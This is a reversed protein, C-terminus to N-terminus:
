VAGAMVQKILKKGQGGTLVDQTWIALVDKPGLGPPQQDRNVVWVNVPTPDPKNQNAINTPAQSMRRNGMANMTSLTDAGILDVASQRMIFEGPAALIPVSDRTRIPGYGAAARRPVLGGGWFPTGGGADVPFDAADTSATSGSGGGFMWGAATVVGKMAMGFLAASAQNMAIQAMADLVNRALDRFAEGVSKTRTLVDSTFTAFGNKASTFAQPLNDRFMTLMPKGLGEAKAWNNWGQNLAEDMSAPDREAKLKALNSQVELQRKMTEDISIEVQLQQQRADALEKQVKLHDPGGEGKTGKFSTEYASLSTIQSQLGPQLNRYTQERARLAAAEAEAQQPLLRQRLDREAAEMDRYADARDGFQGQAAYVKQQGASVPVAAKMQAKKFQADVQTLQEQLLAHYAGWSKTVDGIKKVVEAVQTKRSELETNSAQLAVHLQLAADERNALKSSDLAAIQRELEAVREAAVLAEQAKQKAYTPGSSDAKAERMKDSFVKNAESLQIRLRDIHIKVVKRSMEASANAVEQLAKEQELDIKALETEMRIRNTNEDGSWLTADEKLKRRQLEAREAILKIRNAQLKDQQERTVNPDALAKQDKQLAVGVREIDAGLVEVLKKAYTQRATIAATKLTSLESEIKNFIGSTRLASNKDPYLAKLGEYQDKLRAWEKMMEESSDLLSLDGKRPANEATYRNQIKSLTLPISRQFNEFALYEAGSKFSGSKEQQELVDQKAKNGSVSAITHTWKELEKRIAELQDRMEDSLGEAGSFRLLEASLTTYRERAANLDSGPGRAMEELSRLSFNQAARDRGTYRTAALTADSFTGTEPDYSVNVLARSNLLEGMKGIGLESVEKRLQRGKELENGRQARLSDLGRSREELELERLVQILTNVDKVDERIYVGMSSLNSNLEAIVPSLDAGAKSLSGYRNSLKEIEGNLTSAAQAHSDMRGKEENIQADLKESAEKAARQKSAYLEWGLAAGALVATLAVMPGIRTLLSTASAATATSLAMQQATLVTVTKQATVYHEILLSLGSFVKALGATTMLGLWLLTKATVASLAVVFVGSLLGSIRDFIGMVGTGVSLLGKFADVMPTAANAVASLGTNSFKAWSGALSDMQTAAAKASDGGSVIAKRMADVNDLSNFLSAMASATRVGFVNVADATTFGADRLKTLVEFLGQSSINVDAMTLGLRTFVKDLKENPASLGELVQRLGTGLTSGSKIGTNAMAALATTMDALSVGVEASVNGAYQLGLAFKEADLKSVNLAASVMNSVVGMQSAQMNFAGLASTAIDVATKLETGTATALQTVQQISSSIEQPSLGAQAMVTGAKAIDTGSFKSGQSLKLFTGGLREMEINTSGTIAQLNKLEAEFDMVFKRGSQLGGVLGGILAYNAMLHGQVGLTTLGGNHGLWMDVTQARRDMMAMSPAPLGGAGSSAKMTSSISARKHAENYADLEKRAAKWAEATRLILAEDRTLQAARWEALAAAEAKVLSKKEDVESYLGAEARLGQARSRFTFVGGTGRALSGQAKEFEKDQAATLAQFAKTEETIAKIREKIRALNAVHVAQSKADGNESAQGARAQEAIELARLKELDRTSGITALRGMYSSNTASLMGQVAPAALSQKFANRSMEGQVANSLGRAFDQFLSGSLSKFGAKIGSVVARELGAQLANDFLGGQGILTKMEQAMKVLQSRQKDNSSSVGHMQTQLAALNAKLQSVSDGAAQAALKTDTLAKLLTSADGDLKVTKPDNGAM